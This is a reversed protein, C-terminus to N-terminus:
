LAEVIKIPVNVTHGYWGLRNKTLKDNILAVELRNRIFENNLQDKKTVGSMWRLIRMKAM